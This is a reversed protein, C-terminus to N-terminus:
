RARVELLGDGQSFVKMAEFSLKQWQLTADYVLVLRVSAQRATQVFQIVTTITSSNFHDLAEFHMELGVKRERAAALVEEFFPGLVQDPQRWTSKGRWHLELPADAARQAVEISLDGAKLSEIEM